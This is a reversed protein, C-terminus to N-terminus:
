FHHSNNFNPLMVQIVTNTLGYWGIQEPGWYLPDHVQFLTLLEFAGIGNIISISLIILTFWLRWRSYGYAFFIKFGRLLLASIKSGGRDKLNSLRTQKSFPEKVFFLYLIGLISAGVSLWLLPDFFCGSRKLWQGTIVDSLAQSIYLMAQLVAIRFTLWRQSSVDALYAVCVTMIITFGGTVGMLLSSAIFFYVEVKFYVLFMNFIAGAANGILAFLLIPKRGYKDSLPGAILAVVVSTIQGLSSNILILLSARGEVVDNTGNGLAKDLLKSNVCFSHNPMDFSSNDRLAELGFQQYFYLEVLALYLYTSFMFLFMIPEVSINRLSLLVFQCITKHNCGNYKTSRYNDPKNSSIIVSDEEEGTNVCKRSRASGGVSM